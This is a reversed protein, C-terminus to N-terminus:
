ALASASLLSGSGTAGAVSIGCGSSTRRVSCRASDGMEALSIQMCVALSGFSELTSCYTCCPQGFLTSGSRSRYVDLCNSSEIYSPHRRRPFRTITGGAPLSATSCSSCSPCGPIDLIFARARIYTQHGPM